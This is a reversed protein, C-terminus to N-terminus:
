QSEIYAWLAFWYFWTSLFFIIVGMAPGDEKFAKQTASLPAFVLITLVLGGMYVPAALMMGLLWKLMGM